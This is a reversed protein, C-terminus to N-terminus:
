LDFLSEQLMGEDAVAKHEARRTRIFATCFDDDGAHFPLRRNGPLSQFFEQESAHGGPLHRPIPPQDIRKGGILSAFQRARLPTLLIQSMLRLCTESRSNSFIM